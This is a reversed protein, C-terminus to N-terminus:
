RFDFYSSLYSSSLLTSTPNQPNPLPDDEPWAKAAQLIEVPKLVATGPQLDPLSTYFILESKKRFEFRSGGEQLHVAVFGVM